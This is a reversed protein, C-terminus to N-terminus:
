GGNEQRGEGPDGAAGPGGEPPSGRSESRGAQDPLRGPDRANAASPDTRKRVLEELREQTVAARACDPCLRVEHVTRHVVEQVADQVRLQYVEGQVKGLSDIIERGCDECGQPARHQGTRYFNRAYELYKMLGDLTNDELGIRNTVRIGDQTEIILQCGDHGAYVGDGIYRKNPLRNTMGTTMGTTM